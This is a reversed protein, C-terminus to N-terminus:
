HVSWCRLCVGGLAPSGDGEGGRVWWFVRPGDLGSEKGAGGGGGHGLLGMGGRGWFEHRTRVKKRKASNLTGVLAEFMNM